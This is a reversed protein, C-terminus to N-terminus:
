SRDWGNRPRTAVGAKLLARRVTAANVGLAAGITAMSEGAQYRRVAEGQAEASRLGWPRRPVDRCKLIEFVTDRCIHFSKVLEETGAGHRYATVLEHIEPETLRHQVQKPIPAPRPQRSPALAALRRLNETEPGMSSYRGLLEVPKDLTRM